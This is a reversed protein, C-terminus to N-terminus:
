KRQENNIESQFNNRILFSKEPLVTYTSGKCLSISSDPKSSISIREKFSQKSKFNRNLNQAGRPFIRKELEKKHPPKFLTRTTLPAAIPVPNQIKEVTQKNNQDKPTSNAKSKFSKNTISAKTISKGTASAM